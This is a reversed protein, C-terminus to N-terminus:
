GLDELCKGRVDVKGAYYREQGEGDRYNEVDHTSDLRNPSPNDNTDANEGDQDQTAHETEPRPQDRCCAAIAGVGDDVHDAAVSRLQKKHAVQNRGM